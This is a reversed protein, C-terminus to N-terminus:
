VAVAAAVAHAADWVDVYRTSLPAPALRITDPPRFDPLVRHRDILRRCIAAADPHRVAVHGGRRAEDRPTALTFGAPGLIEDFLDILLGTLSLSKARIAAIGAQVSTEIGAGAAAVALMPPTGTVFRGIGAAPRYDDAFAFMDAHGFWGHIPQQLQSHLDTRVYLFAPAGPGGNLYKYTCGVALDAGTEGLEVPVIGAAHSLDWLTRAGVDHALSTIAAMDAIAGSKYGVHSLSVLGVRDDLAAAVDDPQPGLVPDADVVRLEGGAAAAVGSLVYRDSPFNTDDTVIVPREPRAALAASALKYLNVSTQDSIVVEGPEAGLLETGLLDGIRGPEGVWHDWSRVLGTAWEQWATRELKVLAMRPPRGLSNGDMYIVEPEPIAFLQLHDALPDEGDRRAADSREIM